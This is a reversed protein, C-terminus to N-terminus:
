AKTAWQFDSDTLLLDEFASLDIISVGDVTWDPVDTFTKTFQEIDYQCTSDTYRNIQVAVNFTWETSWATANVGTIKLATQLTMGKFVYSQILM